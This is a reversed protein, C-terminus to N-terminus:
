EMLKKANILLLTNPSGALLEVTAGGFMPLLKTQAQKWLVPLFVMMESILEPCHNWVKKSKCDRLFLMPWKKGYSQIKAAKLAGLLYVYETTQFFFLIWLFDLFIFLAHFLTM